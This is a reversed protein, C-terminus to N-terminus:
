PAIRGTATRMAPVTDGVTTFATGDTILLLRVAAGKEVALETPLGAWGGCLSNPYGGGEVRPDVPVKTPDTCTATMVLRKGAALADAKKGETKLVEVVVTETINVGEVTRERSHVKGEVILDAAQLVEDPSLRRIGPSAHAATAALLFFLTRM